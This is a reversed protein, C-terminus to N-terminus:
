GVEKESAGRLRRVGVNDMGSRVVRSAKRHSPRKDNFRQEAANKRIVQEAGLVIDHGGCKNRSTLGIHVEGFADM